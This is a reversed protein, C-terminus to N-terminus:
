KHPHPPPIDPSLSMFTSAAPRSKIDNIATLLVQDIDKLM